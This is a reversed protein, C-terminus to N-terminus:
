DQSDDLEKKLKCDKAHGYEHDWEWEPLYQECIPCKHRQRDYDFVRECQKLLDLRRDAVTEWYESQGMGTTDIM